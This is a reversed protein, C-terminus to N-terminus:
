LREGVVGGGGVALGHDDGMDLAPVRDVVEVDQELHVADVDEIEARLVDRVAQADRSHALVRADRAEDLVGNAPDRFTALNGSAGAAVGRARAVEDREAGAVDRAMRDTQERGRRLTEQRLDPRSHRRGAGDEEAVGGGRDQPAIAGSGTYQRSTIPLVRAGATLKVVAALGLIARRRAAIRTASM